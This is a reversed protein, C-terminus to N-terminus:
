SNAEGHAIGRLTNLAKRELQRVREASISLERGINALRWPRGDKLGYRREIIHALRDDLQSVLEYLSDQLTSGAFAEEVPASADELQMLSGITAGDNEGVPADLSLHDRSWDNLDHIRQVSKDLEAAIEEDTPVRGLERQLDNTARALQSVEEEIHIPLRINRAQHAIGRTIAQKIWWTAYTSFKYGKTYDFKEGARMLGTNGEQIRDLLPLQSAHGRTRAISVVLRLNAHLFTEFAREGEEALWELEEKAADTSTRSVDMLLQRAYLGAEISKALEVEDEATLLEHEGIKSLYEGLDDRMSSEGTSNSVQLKVSTRRTGRPKMAPSPLRQNKPTDSLLDDLQEAVKKAVSARKNNINTTTTECQLAAAKTGIALSTRVHRLTQELGTTKKLGLAYLGLLSEIEDSLMDEEVTEPQSLYDGETHQDIKRYFADTSDRDYVNHVDLQDHNM